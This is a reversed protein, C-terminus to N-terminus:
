MGNMMPDPMPAPNNAPAAGANVPVSGPTAPMPSSSMGGGGCAALASVSVLLVIARLKSM